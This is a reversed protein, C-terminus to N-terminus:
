VYTSIRQLIVPPSSGTGASMPNPHPWPEGQILQWNMVPSVYLSLCDNVSVNVGVPLKSDGTLWCTKPSHSSTPTGQSFGRLCLSFTLVCLLNWCWGPISGVVRKSNPFLALREANQLEPSRFSCWVEGGRKPETNLSHCANKPQDHTM